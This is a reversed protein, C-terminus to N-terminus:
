KVEFVKSYDTAIRYRRVIVTEGPLVSESVGHPRYQFHLELYADKVDKSSIEVVQDQVAGKQLTVEGAYYPTVRAGGQTFFAFLYSIDTKDDAVIQLRVKGFGQPQLHVDFVPATIRREALDDKQANQDAPPPLSRDGPGLNSSLPADAPRTRPMISDVVELLEDATARVDVRDGTKKATTSYLPLAGGKELYRFLFGLDVEVGTLAGDMRFYERVTFDPDAKYYECFEVHKQAVANVVETLSTLTEPTLALSGPGEAVHQGKGRM